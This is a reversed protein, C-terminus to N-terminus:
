KKEYIIEINKTDKDFTIMDEGVGNCDSYRPILPLAKKLYARFLSSITTPLILKGRLFMTFNTAGFIIDPYRRNYWSKTKYRSKLYLEWQTLLNLEKLFRLAIKAYFKDDSGTM